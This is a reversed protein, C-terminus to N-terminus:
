FFLVIHSVVGNEGHGCCTLRCIKATYVSFCAGREHDPKVAMHSSKLTAAVVGDDGLFASPCVARVTTFWRNSVKVDEEVERGFKLLQLEPPLYRRSAVWARM